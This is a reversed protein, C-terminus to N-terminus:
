QRQPLPPETPPLPSPNITVTYTHTATPRAPIFPVFLIDGARILISSGLCNAFQLQSITVDLERSLRYLNDGPQITYKVWGAPPGCPQLTPSTASLLADPVYLESGPILSSFLMCNAEMLAAETVNYKQALSTLTEGAQVIITIWGAPAPCQATPSAPMTPTSTLSPSVIATATAAFTQDTEAITSPLTPSVLGPASTDAQTQGPVPTSIAAVRWTGETLALSFSGLVLSASLLAALIGFSIQRLDKM